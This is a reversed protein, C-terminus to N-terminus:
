PAVDWTAVTALEGRLDMRVGRLRRSLGQVGRAYYLFAVPLSDDFLRQLDRVGRTEIGSVAALTELYALGDDGQIGLVAAEFDHRPGYVRDLFASLELERIRVDFGARALDAQVLQELVADGSGVTLLEFRVPREDLLRRASDPDPGPVPSALRGPVGPPVPGWAPTGFGYLYGRVIAERDIALAAALRVRRDRFPPHRLNFVLGYPMLMPYAVLTLAPDRRVFAAHAPLVGAVDLEGDVLGALKTTPEGVVVVVLRDLHPPGGMAPPFAPNAVFAWRRGPEHLAFRFPGNGIPHENWAAERLRARPVTDLLHAPVIALDTLVDPFTPQASRFRVVVTSDDPGSVGAVSGLDPGRPYGTAPDRAADLTWVVDGATTARGDAWRAGHVLLLRLTRREDSWQWSQALYPTPALTSDRRALTTLLVYRELENALPHVTVLPNLGELEAGSAIVVDRGHRHGDGVCAALVVAGVSLLLTPRWM